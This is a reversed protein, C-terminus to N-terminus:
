FPSISPNTPQSVPSYSTPLVGIFRQKLDKIKGYKGKLLSWPFLEGQLVVTYPWLAILYSLCMNGPNPHIFWESLLRKKKKSAPLICLLAEEVVTNKKHFCKTGGAPLIRVSKQANVFHILFYTKWIFYIHFVKIRSIQYMELFVLFKGKKSFFYGDSM